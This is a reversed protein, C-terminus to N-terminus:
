QDFQHKLFWYSFIFVRPESIGAFSICQLSCYCVLCIKDLLTEAIQLKYNVLFIHLSVNCVEFFFYCLLFGLMVRTFHTRNKTSMWTDNLNFMSYIDRFKWTITNAYLTWILTNRDAYPIIRFYYYRPLKRFWTVRQLFYFVCYTSMCIDLILSHHKADKELTTLKEHVEKIM